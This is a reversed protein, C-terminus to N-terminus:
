DAAPGPKPARRPNGRKRTAGRGPQWGPREVDPDRPEPELSPPPRPRGVSPSQLRSRDLRAMLWETRAVRGGSRQVRATLEGDDTVVLLTAPQDAEAVLRAILADASGRGSYRVTLGSAIRTDGLGAEQPGDLILEIRIGPEIVGRLRGILTAAPPPSAGRRLAHLLNTGDVLLRETDALRSRRAPLPPM